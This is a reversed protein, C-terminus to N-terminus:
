CIVRVGSDMLNDPQARDIIWASISSALEGTFMKM